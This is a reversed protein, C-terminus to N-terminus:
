RRRKRHPSEAEDESAPEPEATRLAPIVDSPIFDVDKQAM